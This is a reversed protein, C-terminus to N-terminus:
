LRKDPRPKKAHPAQKDDHPPEQPKRFYIVGMAFLGFLVAGTPVLFVMIGFIAREPNM